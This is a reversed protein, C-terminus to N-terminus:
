NANLDQISVELHANVAKIPYIYWGKKVNFVHIEMILKEKRVLVGSSNQIGFTTLYANNLQNVLIIKIILEM